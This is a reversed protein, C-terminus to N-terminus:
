ETNECVSGRAEQSRARWGRQCSSCIGRFFAEMDGAPDYVLLVHATETGLTVFTHPINAPAMLADGANLVMRDSGCQVGISGKLM